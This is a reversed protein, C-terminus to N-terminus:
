SLSQYDIMVFLKLISALSTKVPQAHSRNSRHNRRDHECEDLTIM